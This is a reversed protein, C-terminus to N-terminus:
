SGSRLGTGRRTALFVAATWTPVLDVGPILEAVFAPLFAWHWGLLRIMVVGVGVDIADEIPSAAGAAVLPWILWQTVDAGIAVAWAWRVNTLPRNERPGDTM